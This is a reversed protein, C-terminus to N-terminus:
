GSAQTAVARWVLMTDRMVTKEVFAERSRSEFAHGVAAGMVIGLLAAALSVRLDLYPSPLGSSVTSACVDLTM